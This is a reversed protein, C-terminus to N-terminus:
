WNATFYLFLPRDRKAALDIGTEWAPGPPTAPPAREVMRFEEAWVLPVVLLLCLVRMNM